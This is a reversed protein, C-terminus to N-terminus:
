DIKGSKDRPHFVSGPAQEYRLIYTGILAIGLFTHCELTTPNAFPAILVPFAQMHWAARDVTSDGEKM